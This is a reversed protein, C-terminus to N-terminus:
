KYKGIDYNKLLLAYLKNFFILLFIWLFSKSLNIKEEKKLNNNHSTHISNLNSKESYGGCVLAGRRTVAEGKLIVTDGELLAPWVHHAVLPATFESDFSRRYRLPLSTYYVGIFFNQM